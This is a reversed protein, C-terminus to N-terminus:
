LDQNTLERELGEVFWRGINNGSLNASRELYLYTEKGGMRITYRDGPGGAKLSGARSVGTVKDIKYHSGDEFFIVKPTINGMKDTVTMVKVFTKEIQTM